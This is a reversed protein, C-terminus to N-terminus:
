CTKEPGRRLLLGIMTSEILRQEEDGVDPIGMGSGDDGSLVIKPDIGHECTALSAVRQDSREVASPKKAATPSPSRSGPARRKKRM